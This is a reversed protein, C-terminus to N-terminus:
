VSKRIKLFHLYMAHISMFMSGIVGGLWLLYADVGLWSIFSCIMSFRDLGHLYADNGNNKGHWRQPKVQLDRLHVLHAGDDTPLRRRCRRRACHPIGFAWLGVLVFRGIIGSPLAELFYFFAATTVLMLTCAFGYAGYCTAFAFKATSAYVVHSFVGGLVQHTYAM